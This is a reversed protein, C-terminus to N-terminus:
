SKVNGLMISNNLKKDYDDLLIETSSIIRSPFIADVTKLIISFVVGWFTSGLALDLNRFQVTDSGTKLQLLLGAVTGLIGLLPFVPILQSYVNHRIRIVNFSKELNRVSDPTVQEKDDQDEFKKTTTNFMTTTNTLNMAAEVQGHHRILSFYNGILLVALAMGLIVIMINMNSSLFSFVANM